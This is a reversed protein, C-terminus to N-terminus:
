DLSPPVVTSARSGIVCDESTGTELAAAHCLSGNWNTDESISQAETGINLLKRHERKTFM